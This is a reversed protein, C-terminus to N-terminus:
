ITRNRKMDHSAVVSGGLSGDAQQERYEFTVKAFNLSISEEPNVGNAVAEVAYMSVVCDEFTIRLYEHTMTGAKRCILVARPIHEGSALREVLKPTATNTRMSFRFDDMRARGAGGGGGFRMTGINLASWEWSSLEIAGRHTADHSEGAVGDVKLFYDVAAM